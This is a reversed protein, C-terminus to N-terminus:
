QLREDSLIQQLVEDTMVVPEIGKILADRYMILESEMSMTVERLREFQVSMAHTVMPDEDPDLIIADICLETVDIEASFTDILKNIRTITKKANNKNNKLISDM